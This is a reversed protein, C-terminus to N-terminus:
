AEVVFQGEALTADEVRAVLGHAQLRSSLPERAPDALYTALDPAVRARAIRGGRGTLERLLREAQAALSAIRGQGGCTPCPRELKATAVEGRRARSLIVLGLAPLTHLEVPLPDGRMARKMAEELRRQDQRQRLDIFDVVITGGLNRLRIQRAVEGAAELNTALAERGNSDVDIMCGAVTREIVLRGGGPLRVERACTEDIQEAIGAAEFASGTTALRQVGLDPPFAPAEAALRRLALFLTQDVVELRDPSWPLLARVLREIPPEPTALRGPRTRAESAAEIQTFRQELVQQEALLAADPLSAAHRRIALRSSSFLALARQHLENDGRRKPATTEDGATRRPTYVLALGFLRLDATVRAGKDGEPERLGQVLVRQGEKLLARIPHRGPAQALVRADKALLLGDMELGCDLFAGDLRPEVTGVRALFFADTVKTATPEEDLLAVLRGDQVVAARWGTGVDEIVARVTM